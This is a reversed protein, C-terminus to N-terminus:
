PAIDRLRAYSLAISALCRVNGGAGDGATAMIRRMRRCAARGTLVDCSNRVLSLKHARHRAQKVHRTRVKGAAQRRAKSAWAPSHGGMKSDNM